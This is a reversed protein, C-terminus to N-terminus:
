AAPRVPVRVVFVGLRHRKRGRLRSVKPNGRSGGPQAPYNAATPATNWEAPVYWPKAKTGVILGFFSDTLSQLLQLGESQEDDTLTAGQGTFNSERYAATIITSNLTM